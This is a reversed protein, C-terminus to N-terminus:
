VMQNKHGKQFCISAYFVSVGEYTLDYSMGMIITDDYLYTDMSVSLM